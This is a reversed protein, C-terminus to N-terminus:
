DSELVAKLRRHDADIKTQTQEAIQARLSAALQPGPDAPLSFNLLVRLTLRTRSAGDAQLDYVAFGSYPTTDLAPTLHFVLQSTADAVVVREFRQEAVTGTSTHVKYRAGATRDAGELLEWRKFSTMWRQREFLASWVEAVQREIVLDTRAVAALVTEPPNAAAPAAPALVQMLLLALVGISFKKHVPGTM